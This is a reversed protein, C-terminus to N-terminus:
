RTQDAPPIAAFCIDEVHVSFCCGTKDDEVVGVPYMGPGSEFEQYDTSWARLIGWTWKWEQRPVRLGPSRRYWCAGDIRNAM